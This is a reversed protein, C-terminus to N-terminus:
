QNRELNSGSWKNVYFQKRGTQCCYTIIVWDAKDRNEIVHSASGKLFLTNRCLHRITPEPNVM